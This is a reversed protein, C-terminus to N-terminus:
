EDNVKKHKSIDFCQLGYNPRVDVSDMKRVSRDPRKPMTMTKEMDKKENAQPSPFNTKELTMQFPSTERNKSKSLNPMASVPEHNTSNDDREAKELKISLLGNM